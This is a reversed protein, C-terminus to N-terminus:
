QIDMTSKLYKNKAHQNKSMCYSTYSELKM